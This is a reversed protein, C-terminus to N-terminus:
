DANKKLLARIPNAFMAPTTSVWEEYGEREQLDVESMKVGSVYRLLLVLIAPGILAPIANSGGIVLAFGGISWWLIAEGLHNPHRTISFMGDTKLHGPGHRERYRKLEMDAKHELLLGIVFCTLCIMSLIIKEVSWEMQEAPGPILYFIPLAIILLLVGQLLFVQLFSIWWWHQGATERMRVYRPDEGRNKTRKHLVFGLRLGWLTVCILCAIAAIDFPEYLLFRTWAILVFGMGWLVDMVTVNGSSVTKLWAFTVYAFVVLVTIQNPSMM